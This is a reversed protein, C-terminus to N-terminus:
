GATAEANRGPLLAHGADVLITAGTVATALDSNLYLAANAIEIPDLFTHNWLANHAYGGALMDAETGGPHGAFMDWAAQNSTMPTKIIGPCVANCRVGSGSLELAMSKMLGILGHKAAVYHAYNRGAELSNTSGIVVISGMRRQMMHPAVAKAARWVGALNTDVLEAWQQESIEWFPAVNWIGANAVLADIQGFAAIGTEVAEDLVRQDRVDGIITRVERGYAEVEAVTAKLDDPEPMAYAVTSLQRVLDVLVVNAGERASLVAHARGQGRAGGTILVTKGDLMGM